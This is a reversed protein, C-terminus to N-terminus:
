CLVSVAYSSSCAILFVTLKGLKVMSSILCVTFAISFFVGTVVSLSISELILKQFGLPLYM